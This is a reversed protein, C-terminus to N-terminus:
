PVRRLVGARRAVAKSSTPRASRVRQAAATTRATCCSRRLRCELARARLAQTPLPAWLLCRRHAPESPQRRDISVRRRGCTPPRRAAATAQAARM